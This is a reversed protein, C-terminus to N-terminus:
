GLANRARIMTLSNSPARCQGSRRRCPRGSRGSALWQIFLDVDMAHGVDALDAPRVLVMEQDRRQVLADLDVARTQGLHALELALVVAEREERHDGVADAPARVTAQRASEGELM